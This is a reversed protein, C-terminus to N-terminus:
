EPLLGCFLAAGATLRVQKAVNEKALFTAVQALDKPSFDVKAPSHCLLPISTPLTCITSCCHLLTCITPCCHLRCLISLKQAFSCIPATRPSAPCHSYGATGQAQYCPQVQDRAHGVFVVNKEIAEVLQRAAKRCVIFTTSM